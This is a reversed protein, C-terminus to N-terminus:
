FRKPGLHKIEKAQAFIEKPAEDFYKFLAPCLWGEMDTGRLQYWNGGMEERLIDLVYNGGPFNHGSFLLTFGQKADKIKEDKIIKDIIEPMGAVFPEKVLSTTDDDFVWTGSSKFPEIAIISNDTLNYM